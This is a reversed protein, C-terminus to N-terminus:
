ELNSAKISKDREAYWDSLLWLAVSYGLTARSQEAVYKYVCSVINYFGVGGEPSVFIDLHGFVLHVM